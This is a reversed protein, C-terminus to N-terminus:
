LSLNYLLRGRFTHMCTKFVQLLCASQNSILLSLNEIIWAKPVYLTLHYLNLCLYLMIGNTTYSFILQHIMKKHIDFLNHTTSIMKFWTPESLFILQFHAIRGYSQGLICANKILTYVLQLVVYSLYFSSILFYIHM